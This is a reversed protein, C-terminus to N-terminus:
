HGQSRLLLFLKRPHPPLGFRQALCRQSYARKPCTVASSGCIKSNSGRTTSTFYVGDMLGTEEPWDFPDPDIVEKPFDGSLLWFPNDETDGSHQRIDNPTPTACVYHASTLSTVINDTPSSVSVSTAIVNSVSTLDIISGIYEHLSTLYLLFLFRNLESLRGSVSVPRM